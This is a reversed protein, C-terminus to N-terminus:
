GASHSLFNRRFIKISGGRRIWVNEIGPFISVGFPEVVFKRPLTLCFVESPFDEYGGGIWSSKQTGSILSVRFPEGVFNKPM